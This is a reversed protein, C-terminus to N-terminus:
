SHFNYIEFNIDNDADSWVLLCEYREEMCRVKQWSRASGSDTGDAQIRVELIRRKAGRVIETIEGSVPSVFKVEEQYKDFFIVSGTKVKDGVKVTMKPVLCHFDPPKIAFASVEATAKVKEAEGHLKIDLGKRLKITRSM